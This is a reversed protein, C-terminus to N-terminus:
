ERLFYEVISVVVRVFRRLVSGIMVRFWDHEYYYCCLVSCIRGKEIWVINMKRRLKKRENAVSSDEDCSGVGATRTADHDLM